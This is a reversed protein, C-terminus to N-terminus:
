FGYTDAKKQHVFFVIENKTRDMSYLIRVAQRKLKKFRDGGITKSIRLWEVEDPVTVLWNLAKIVSEAGVSCSISSRRMFLDLAIIRDQLGEGPIEVFMKEELSRNTTYKLSWDSLNGKEAITSAEQIAESVEMLEQPEGPQESDPNTDILTTQGTTDVTELLESLAMPGYSRIWSKAFKHFHNFNIRLTRDSSQDKASWLEEKHLAILEAVEWIIVEVQEDSHEFVLEKLYQIEPDSLFKLFPMIGYALAKFLEQDTARLSETFGLQADDDGISDLLSLIKNLAQETLGEKASSIIGGEMLKKEIWLAMTERNIISSSSTFNEFARNHVVSHPVISGLLGLLTYESPDYHDISFEAYFPSQTAALYLLLQDLQQTDGAWQRRRADIRLIARILKDSIRSRLYDYKTALQEIFETSSKRAELDDRLEQEVKQREPPNQGAEDLWDPLNDKDPVGLTELKANKVNKMRPMDPYLTFFDEMYLPFDHVLFYTKWTQGARPKYWSPAPQRTEEEWLEKTQNALQQHAISVMQAKQADGNMKATTINTARISFRLMRLYFDFIDNTDVGQQSLEDYIMLYAASATASFTLQNTEEASNRITKELAGLKKAGEGQVLNHTSLQLNRLDYLLSRTEQVREGIRALEYSPYNFLTLTTPRTGGQTESSETEVPM